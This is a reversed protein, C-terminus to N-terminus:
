DVWGTNEKCKSCQWVEGEEPNDPNYFKVEQITEEKCNSCFRKMIDYGWKGKKKKKTREM